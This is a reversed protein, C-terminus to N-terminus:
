HAKEGFTGKPQFHVKHMLMDLCGMSIAVFAVARRACWLCLGNIRLPKRIGM